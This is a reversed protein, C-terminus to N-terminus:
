PLGHPVGPRGRSAPVTATVTDGAGAAIATTDVEGSGPRQPCPDQRSSWTAGDDTSRLLTSTASPAGGAVHGTALLYVNSGGRVLQVGAVEGRIPPLPPSKWGTSGVIATQISLGCPGPCGSGSSRLRVVNGDLTEVALAGGTQRQWDRGGDTTIFFAAPGFAYGIRDTAFRVHQVCPARCAKVGPM